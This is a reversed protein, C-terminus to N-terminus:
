YSINFPREWKGEQILKEKRDRETKFVYYWFFLPGLGFVAGTLALKPTPRFSPYINASRAYTWRTLAPDEIITKRNPDNLQLLYERKLRSRIALREVQAQRTELSINYEAPDLTTPLTALRSPKYKPFSM